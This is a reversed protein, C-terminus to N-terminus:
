AGFRMAVSLDPMRGELLESSVCFFIADASPPCGPVFVDVKVVEHVPRSAGAARCWRTPCSRNITANECTPASWRPKPRRVPQADGPRQRDGRLRRALGPHPTRACWRIKHLDDESSVAGEVLTVDVNEPFEKADV